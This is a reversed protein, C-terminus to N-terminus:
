EIIMKKTVVHDDFKISYFYVGASMGTVDLEYVHGGAPRTGLDDSKILKGSLDMIDVAVKHTNKTSFTILTSASFPNPMNQNVHIGNAAAVEDIGVRDSIILRVAPSFTQASFWVFAGSGARQFVGTSNDTDSNPWVKATLEKDQQFENIIGAFYVEGPEMDVSNEYPLYTWLTQNNNSPIWEQAVEWSSQEYFTNAGNLGEELNVNYIRADCVAGVDSAAGLQVLVGYATSGSNPVTYFAGYGTPDFQGPQGTVARPRAEGTLITEDDHGYEDVSYVIEKLVVNNLPTEDANASAITARITYTGTETPEWGTEIYEELFTPQPCEVSNVAALVISPATAVTALVNSGSDLIEVTIVTGAQDLAGVNNYLVGVLLGGDAELTRQEFPTIRYEWIEVIDGNTVQTIVLDNNIDNTYIEIDDVGWFYHSYGAEGAVNYGFRIQVASQGAAACSIDVQTNLPNASITNASPIFTGNAAFDTWNTGGDTSVGVTVPSGPFCCYRFYQQWEIIVSAASSLDMVPSILSGQVDMYNPNLPTNYLDCDFIAWGNASTASGLAAITTSYEGAPSDSDAMKWITNGGTDQVTWAGLGGNNGAFGNAFDETFLVVRNGDFIQSGHVAAGQQISVSNEESTAHRVSQRGIGNFYDNQAQLGVSVLAAASLLYIKRMFIMTKFHPPLYYTNKRMEPM